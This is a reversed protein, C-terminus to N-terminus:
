KSGKSQYEQRERPTAPRASILRISDGRWVYVVVLLRGLSDMGLTIWREEEESYHDRITLALEDELVSVPDSFLVGHKHLNADAKDPGWAYEVNSNYARNYM